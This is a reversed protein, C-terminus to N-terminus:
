IRNKQTLKSLFPGMQDNHFARSTLTLTDIQKKLAEAIKPNNHGQNLASYASLMDIYEKGEVDKVWVGKGEKIVVPIPHYNHASVNDVESIFEQTNKAM